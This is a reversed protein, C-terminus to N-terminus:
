VAFRPASIKTKGLLGAVNAAFRRAQDKTLLKAARRRGPDEEYYVYALKQRASDRVVFADGIDEVSWPPPFGHATLAPPTQTPILEGADLLESLKALQM